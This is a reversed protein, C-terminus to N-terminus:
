PANIQTAEIVIGLIAELTGRNKNYNAENAIEEPMRVVLAVYDSESPALETSLTYYDNLKEDAVAKAEDRNSVLSEVNSLEDGTVVGFKLYKQLNFDAGATSPYDAVIVGTRFKFVQTGDNTVKLYVTQVYGPEYLAERDFIETQSDVETWNGNKDLYSVTLDFDAFHFINNIDPSADAFWALSAGTGLVAWLVIAFLSLVLAIKKYKKTTEKKL